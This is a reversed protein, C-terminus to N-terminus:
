SITQGDIHFIDSFSTCLEIVKERMFEPVRKKLTNQLNKIRNTTNTESKHTQVIHFDNLQSAQINETNILKISESTNLVRLWTNAKM